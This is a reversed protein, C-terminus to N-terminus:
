EPEQGTRVLWERYEPEADKHLPYYRKLSEGALLKERSFEEWGHDKHAKEVMEEALAVPVCVAGDDDAVIIDGPVVTVGGCAVPVNVAFPMINTQAHYNPTVGRIWLALDLKQVRGWDRICGDIVVGAGKRGKFYTMMMDGFIGSTMDGRADVVVVDGEEVQYLVHRHLQAEVDAYEGEDLLDERKPMCQLTVAPGAVVRGPSFCLPGTLFCNRLGMHALTASATAAGVERVRDLLDKDQRSIRAIDM